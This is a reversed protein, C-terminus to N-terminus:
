PRSVTLRDGISSPARVTSTNAAAYAVGVQRHPLTPSVAGEGWSQVAALAASELANELEVRSKWLNAVEVVVCLMALLVPLAIITWLTVVGRRRGFAPRGPRQRLRAQALSGEPRM